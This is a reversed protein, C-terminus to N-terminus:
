LAPSKTESAVVRHGARSEAIIEFTLVQGTPHDRKWRYIFFRKQKQREATGTEVIDGAADRVTVHLTQVRYLDGTDVYFAQGAKGEYGKLEFPKVITPAKMADSKALWFTQSDLKRVAPAYYAIAEPDAIVGQAYEIARRLNDHTRQEKASKKKRRKRKAPVKAVVCKDTGYWKYVRDGLKGRIEPSHGNKNLIAM